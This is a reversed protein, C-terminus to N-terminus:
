SIVVEITVTNTGASDGFFTGLRPKGWGPTVGM